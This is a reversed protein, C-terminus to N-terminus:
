ATSRVAIELASVAPLKRQPVSGAKTVLVVDACHIRRQGLDSQGHVVIGVARNIISGCWAGTQGKVHVKHRELDAQVPAIKIGIIGDESGRLPAVLPQGPPEDKNAVPVEWLEFFKIRIASPVVTMVTWNPDCAPSNDYLANRWAHIPQGLVGGTTTASISLPPVASEMLQFPAVSYSAQVTELPFSSLLRVSIVVTGFSPKSVLTIIPDVENTCTLALVFPVPVSHVHLYLPLLLEATYLTWYINRHSYSAIKSSRLGHICASRWNLQRGDRLYITVHHRPVASRGLYALFIGSCSGKWCRNQNLSKGIWVIAQENLAASSTSLAWLM